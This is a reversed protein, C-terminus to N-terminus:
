LARIMCFQLMRSEFDLKVVVELRKNGGGDDNLGFLHFATYSSCTKHYWIKLPNKSNIITKFFCSFRWRGLDSIENNKFTKSFDPDFKIIKWFM